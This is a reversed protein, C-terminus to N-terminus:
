RGRGGRGAGFKTMKPPEGGNRANRDCELIVVRLSRSADLTQSKSSCTYGYVPDWLEVYTLEASYTDPVLTFVKETPSQRTGKPIRLAYMEGEEEGSLVLEVAKGSRNVVTLRVKPTTAAVTAGWALMAVLVLMFLTKKRM